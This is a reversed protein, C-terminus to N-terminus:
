ERVANYDTHLLRSGSRDSTILTFTHIIRRPLKEQRAYSRSVCFCLICFRNDINNSGALAWVAAASNSSQVSPRSPLPTHLFLWCFHYAFSSHKFPHPIDSSCKIFSQKQKTRVTHLVRRVNSLSCNLSSSFGVCSFLYWLVSSRNHELSKIIASSMCLNYNSKKLTILLM